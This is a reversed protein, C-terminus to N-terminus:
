RAFSTKKVTFDETSVWASWERGRSTRGGLLNEDGEGPRPVFVVVVVDGEERLHIDYDTAKSDPLTKEFEPYATAIARAEVGTVKPVPDNADPM